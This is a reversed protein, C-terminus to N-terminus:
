AAKVEARTQLFQVVQGQSIVGAMHGDSVVPLQNVNEQVMLELARNVSTDPTVTQIQEIPRMIQDITTFRWLERRVQRLENVTVIGLDRDNRRVVFCRRGTRLLNEQVFTLLNENADVAPCDSSMIDGVRVDALVASAEIQASSAAAAQSLFWGIFAIWLGGFGAGSFFRYMGLMIFVFGAFQGISATIRTSRVMDGTIRWVIARLVRGGDLPYGPIMNFIALAINIYGLWTMAAWLPEPPTELEYPRWGAVFAVSLFFLGIVVSAIPGAIAMWFESKADKSEREMNAVGGLAFLTISRVSLGRRQAVAAHSLEHALISAFFFLGTLAALSWVTLGGWEPNVMEFHGALSFTILVAIIVWSYHLGIDIGWIRGLRISPRM